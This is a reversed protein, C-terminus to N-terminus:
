AALVEDDVAPEALELEPAGILWDCFRVLLVSLGFFAVIIAVYVVDQMLHEREGAGRVAGLASLM